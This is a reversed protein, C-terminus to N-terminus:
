LSYITCGARAMIAEYTTGKFDEFTIPRCAAKEFEGIVVEYLGNGRVMFHGPFHTTFLNDLDAPLSTEGTCILTITKSRSYSVCDTYVRRYTGFTPTKPIDPIPSLHKAPPNQPPLAPAHFCGTTPLASLTALLLSRKLM